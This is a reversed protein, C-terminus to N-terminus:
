ELTGALLRRTTPSRKPESEQGKLVDGEDGLDGVEGPIHTRRARTSPSECEDMKSHPQDPPSTLPLFHDQTGGSHMCIAADAHTIHEHARVLPVDLTFPVHLADILALSHLVLTNVRLRDVGLTWYWGRQTGRTSQMTCGVVGSSINAIQSRAVLNVVASEGVRANEHHGHHERRTRITAAMANRTGVRVNEGELEVSPPSKRDTQPKTPHIVPSRCSSWVLQLLRSALRVCRPEVPALFVGSVFCVIGDINHVRMTLIGAWSPKPALLLRSCPYPYGTRTASVTRRARYGQWSAVGHQPNTSDGDGDNGRAWDRGFGGM